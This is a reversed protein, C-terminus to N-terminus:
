RAPTVANNAQRMQEWKERPPAGAALWATIQARLWRRSRGLSISEPTLERAYLSWWHRLSVGCLAAAQKASLAEAIDLRGTQLDKM